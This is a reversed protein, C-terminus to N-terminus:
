RRLASALTPRHGWVDKHYDSYYSWHAQLEESARVEEVTHGALHAKRYEELPERNARNYRMSEEADVAWYARQVLDSHAKGYEGNMAREIASEGYAGYTLRKYLEHLENDTLVSLNNIIISLEYWTSIFNAM